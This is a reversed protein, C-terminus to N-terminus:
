PTRDAPASTGPGRSRPPAPRWRDPSPAHPVVSERTRHAAAQGAPLAPRQGRDGPLPESAALGRDGPHHVPGGQDIDPERVARGADLDGGNELREVRIQSLFPQRDHSQVGVANELKRVRVLVAGGVLFRPPTVKSFRWRVWSTRAAKPLTFMKGVRNRARGSPVITRWKTLKWGRSVSSGAIRSSRSQDSGRPPFGRAVTPGGRQVQQSYRTGAPQPTNRQGRAGGRAQTSLSVSM